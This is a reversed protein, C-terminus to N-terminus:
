LCSVDCFLDPGEGSGLGAGVEAVQRNLGHEQGQLCAAGTMHRSSAAGLLFKHATWGITAHLVKEAERYADKLPGTVAQSRVRTAVRLLIVVDPLFSDDNTNM